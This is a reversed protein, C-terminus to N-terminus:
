TTIGKPTPLSLELLEIARRRVDPRAFYAAEATAKERADAEAVLSEFAQRTADLEESVKTVQSRITASLVRGEAARRESVDKTRLSLAEAHRLLSTAEIVLPLVSSRAGAPVYVMDMPTSDGLVPEQDIGLTYNIKWYSEDGDDNRCAIVYDPYTAVVSSYGDGGYANDPNLLGSLDSRIDEFSREYPVAEDSVNARVSREESTEMGLTKAAALLKVKAAAKAEASIDTQNLRALANAVHAQDPKGAKDKYPLYRQKDKGKGSVYAFSSDPLANQFATSWVARLPDEETDALLPDLGVTGITRMHRDATAFDVTAFINAPEPTLSMEIWPWRRMNGEEDQQVLHAMASSSLFLKGAKVLQRIDDLFRSSRELQMKVWLGTDRVEHATVEGIPETSPGDDDMGHQYLLPRSRFWSLCYDTEASFKTDYYDKGGPFPGDFPIGIGELVFEDDDVFRLAAIPTQM